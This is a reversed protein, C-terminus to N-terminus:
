ASVGARSKLDIHEDRVIEYVLDLRTITDFNNAHVLWKGSAPVSTTGAPHEACDDNPTANRRSAVSTICVVIVAISKLLM